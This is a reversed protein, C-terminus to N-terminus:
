KKNEKQLLDRIETLLKIDEPIVVEKPEEVKELAEKEKALKEEFQKRRIILTLVAYISFAIILFEIIMQILNGYNISNTVKVTGDALVESRLVWKLEKFEVNGLLLAIPPMIVDNVLSTIIKGFAGGIVVGVALDVVNGRTIFDKFGKTFGKAKDKSSIGNKKSM